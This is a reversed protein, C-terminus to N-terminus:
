LSMVSRYALLGRWCFLWIWEVTLGNIGRDRQHLLVPGVQSYLSLQSNIKWSPRCAPSYLATVRGNDYGYRRSGNLRAFATLGWDPSMETTQWGFGVCRGADTYSQVGFRFHVPMIARGYRVPQLLCCFLVPM